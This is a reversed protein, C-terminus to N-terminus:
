LVRYGFKYRSQILEAGIKKRIQNIYRAVNHKYLRHGFVIESLEDPTVWSKALGMLTMLVKFETWTFEVPEGNVICSM